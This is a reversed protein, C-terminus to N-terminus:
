SSWAEVNGEHARRSREGGGMWSFRRERVSEALIRGRGLAKQAARAGNVRM